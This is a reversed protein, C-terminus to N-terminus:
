DVIATVAAKKDVHRGTEPKRDPSWTHWVGAGSVWECEGPFGKKMGKPITKRDVSVFDIGLPILGKPIFIQEWPFTLPHSPCPDQM